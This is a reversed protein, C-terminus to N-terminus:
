SDKKKAKNGQRPISQFWRLSEERKGGFELIRSRRPCL